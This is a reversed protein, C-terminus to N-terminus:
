THLPRAVVVAAHQLGVAVPVDSPGSTLVKPEIEYMKHRVTAHPSKLQSHAQNTCALPPPVVRLLVALLLSSSTTTSRATVGLGLRRSADTLRRDHLKSRM